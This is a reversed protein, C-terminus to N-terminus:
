LKLRLRGAQVAEYGFQFRPRKLEGSRVWNAEHMEMDSATMTSYLPRELVYYLVSLHWAQKDEDLRYQDEVFLLPGVLPTLGAIHRFHQKLAQAPTEDPELITGPPHWLNTKSHSTLLVQDNEILIGYAAPRFIVKDPPVVVTNGAVDYCHIMTM